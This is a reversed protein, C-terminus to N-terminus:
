VGKELTNHLADETKIFIKELNYLDMALITKSPFQAEMYQSIKKARNLKEEFRDFGLKVPILTRKQEENEIIDGTYIRKNYIDLTKILIGTNEDGHITMVQGIGRVRLLDMIANFLDGEFLYTNDSLSLDVGSIVPLSNLHDEEPEYEKFPVGQTNIIIDALNEITVIALPTHEEIAISITSLLGRKVVAKSIWPHAKLQKELVDLRLEFINSPMDLGTRSLVEQRTVRDMGSIDITKVEFFPSQVVADHLYIAGLSMIAMMFIVSILKVVSKGKPAAQPSKESRPQPKYRNPKIKKTAM